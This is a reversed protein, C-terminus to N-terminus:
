NELYEQNDLIWDTGIVGKKFVELNGEYIYPTGSIDKVYAMPNHVLCMFGSDNMIIYAIDSDYGAATKTFRGDRIIIQKLVKLLGDDYPIDVSLMDMYGQKSYFTFDVPKGTGMFDYDRITFFDGYDSIYDSEDFSMCINEIKEGICVKDFCFRKLEVKDLDIFIKKPEEKCSVSIISLVFVVVYLLVKRNMPM